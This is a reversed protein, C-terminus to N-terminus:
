SRTLSDRPSGPLELIVYQSMEALHEVKGEGGLPKKHATYSMGPGKSRFELRQSPCLM